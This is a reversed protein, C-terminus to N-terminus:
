HALIHVDSVEQIKNHIHDDDLETPYEMMSNTYTCGHCLLYESLLHNYFALMASKAGPLKQLVANHLKTWETLKQDVFLAKNLEFSPQAGQAHKALPEETAAASTPSTTAKAAAKVAAATAKKVAAIAKRKCRKKCNALSM